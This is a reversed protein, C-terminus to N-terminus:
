ASAALLQEGERVYRIAGVSRYFALAHRLQADAEALRGAAVLKEAARLRSAAESPRSGIEAFRAAAAEFDGEAYAVAAHLWPTRARAGELATVLDRGRGLAWLVVALDVVWSSRVFARTESWRGLLEEAHEQADRRQGVALLTSARFAIVPYLTQPDKALGLELATASDDLAGDPDGRGLRISGRIRHCEPTFWWFVDPEPM